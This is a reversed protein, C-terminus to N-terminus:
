NMWIPVKRLAKTRHIDLGNELACAVAEQETKLYKQVLINEAKGSVLWKNGVKRIYRYKSLEGFSKMIDRKRELYVLSNNYLWDRLKVCKEKGSIGYVYCGDVESIWGSNRGIVKDLITKLKTLFILTGSFSVDFKGGVYGDGDFFGRVFHNLLNEPIHSFISSDLNNSKRPNLGKLILAERIQKSTIRLKCANYYRNTKKLFSSRFTLPTNFILALKALHESDKMSLEIFIRNSNSELCGDATFFGLWYSKEETDIKNFFSEDYFYKRLAGM